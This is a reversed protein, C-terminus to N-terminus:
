CFMGVTEAKVLTILFTSFVNSLKQLGHHKSDASVEFDRILNLINGLRGVRALPVIVLEM